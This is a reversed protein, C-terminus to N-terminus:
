HRRRVVDKQAITHALYPEIEELPFRDPSFASVDISTRGDAVFEALLEGAAPNYAFGGSHFAVAVFLGPLQGVPGLIPEGDLSFTLLGIKEEEWSPLAQGPLLIQMRNRLERRLDPDVSLSSQHFDLSRVPFEEREPTEIGGLLGGCLAPRFYIRCPNANVAPINPLSPRPRCVYRQHVFCKVPLPLGIPELLARTWSYVTSIVADAEIEGAATKVGAVRGNRLLFGYVQQQDRIEVGLTRAKAALAPLYESTESYGGLPDFLGTTGEPVRLSPWCASVEDENLIEYPAQLRDYLPLLPQRETWGEASFLNRCGTERFQYGDLERSLERFLALSRKRVLVGTPSWLLGTIIGAARSSSGDGIPGKELVVVRGAQRRALHYAASLGIVGAGIVITTV